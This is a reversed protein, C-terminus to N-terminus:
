FAFDHVLRKGAADPALAQAELIARNSSQALSIDLIAAKLAHDKAAGAQRRALPQDGSELFIIDGFIDAPPQQM